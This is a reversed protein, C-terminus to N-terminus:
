SSFLWVEGDIEATSYGQTWLEGVQEWDVAALIADFDERGVEERFTRPNQWTRMERLTGTDEAFEEAWEAISGARGVFAEAAETAVDSWDVGADWNRPGGMAEVYALLTQLEHDDLGDLQEALRQAAAPSCEGAIFPELGEADLCWLEEHPSAQPHWTGLHEELARQPEDFGTRIREALTEVTVTDAEIADVWQGVLHGANYCGLCGVWVRMPTSVMTTM